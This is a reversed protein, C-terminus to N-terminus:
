FWFFLGLFYSRSNTPSKKQLSKLLLVKKWLVKQTRFKLVKKLFSKEWSSKQRNGCCCYRYCCHNRMVKVNEKQITWRSTDFNSEKLFLSVFFYKKRKGYYSRCDYTFLPIKLKSKVANLQVVTYVTCHVHHRSYM